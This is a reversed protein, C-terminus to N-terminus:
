KLGGAGNALIRPFAYRIERSALLGFVSMQAHDPPQGEVWLGWSPFQLELFM